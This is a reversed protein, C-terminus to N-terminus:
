VYHLLQIFVIYDRIYSTHCMAKHASTDGPLVKKKGSRLRAKYIGLSRSDCPKLFLPETTSFVICTVGQKGVSVVQCCLGDAVICFNNPSQCSFSNLSGSPSITRACFTGFTSCEKLRHAVQVLPNRPSRVMQKLQQM